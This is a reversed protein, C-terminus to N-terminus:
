WPTRFDIYNTKRSSIDICNMIFFSICNEILFLGRQFLLVFCFLVFFLLFWAPTNKILQFRNVWVTSPESCKQCVIDIIPALFAPFMKGAGRSWLFGSTLSGPMCWPVQTVCTVHHMDPDSVRPPPSFTGPMGPAHARLKVYRTLPKMTFSDDADM